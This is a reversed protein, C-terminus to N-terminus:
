IGKHIEDKLYEIFSKLTKIHENMFYWAMGAGIAILVVITISLPAYGYINQLITTVDM